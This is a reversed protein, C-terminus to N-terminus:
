VLMIVAADLTKGHEHGAGEEEHAARRTEASESESGKLATGLEEVGEEPSVEPV